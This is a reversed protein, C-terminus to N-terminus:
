GADDEPADDAADDPEANQAAAADPPSVLPINISVCGGLPALMLCACGLAIVALHARVAEARLFKAMAGYM